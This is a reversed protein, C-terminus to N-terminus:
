AGDVDAQVRNQQQMRATRGTPLKTMSYKESLVMWMQKYGIKSNCGQLEVQLCNQIYSCADHYSVEIAEQVASIATYQVKM